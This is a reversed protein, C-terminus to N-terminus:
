HRYWPPRFALANAASRTPNLFFCFIKGLNRHNELMPRVYKQDIWDEGISWATGLIPTMVLDVYAQRGRQQWPEPGFKQGLNGLSCESIPGIEFQTSYIASFIFQKIKGHLYEKNAGFKAHRSQPHNQAFIFASVSGQWPHCIYNSFISGGDDWGHLGDVSEFWDKFFPGTLQERTKEESWLRYGHEVGLFMLSQLAIKGYATKEKEVQAGRAPKGTDSSSLRVSTGPPFEGGSSPSGFGSDPLRFSFAPKDAAILASTGILLFGVAIGFWKWPSNLDLEKGKGDTCTDASLFGFERSESIM